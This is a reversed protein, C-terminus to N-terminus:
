DVLLVKNWYAPLEAAAAKVKADASDLHPQVGETSQQTDDNETGKEGPNWWEWDYWGGFFATEKYIDLRGGGGPALLGIDTLHGVVVEKSLADDIRVSSLHAIWIDQECENWSPVVANQVEERLSRLGTMVPDLGALLDKSGQEINAVTMDTDAAPPPALPGLWAARETLVAVAEAYFSLGSDGMDDKLELLHNVNELSVMQMDQPTAADAGGESGGSSGLLAKLGGKAKDKVAAVTEKALSKWADNEIMDVLPKAKMISEATEMNEGIVLALEPFAIIAASGVLVMLLTHTEEPTAAAQGLVTKYIDYNGKYIGNVFNLHAEAEQIIQSAELMENTYTNLDASIAQLGSIVSQPVAVTGGDPGDRQIATGASLPALRQADLDAAADDPTSTVDRQLTFEAAKRSADQEFEDSPDSVSLGDRTATGTVPGASQQQVHRLEHILRGRGEDSHTDYQGPAFIIDSGTTYANAHLAQASAGAGSDDHVRVGSLDTGLFSEAEQRFGSKLPEGPESLTARVSDGAMLDAVAANGAQQQLVLLDSESVAKGPQIMPLPSEKLKPRAREADTVEGAREYDAM